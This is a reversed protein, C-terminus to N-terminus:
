DNANSQCKTLAFVVVHQMRFKTVANTQRNNWESFLKENKFAHNREFDDNKIQILIEKISFCFSSTSSTIKEDNFAQQIDVDLENFTTQQINKLNISHLISKTRWINSIIDKEIIKFKCQFLWISHNNESKLVNEKTWRYRARQIMIRNWMSQIDDSMNVFRISTIMDNVIWVNSSEAIILLCNAFYKSFEHLLDDKILRNIQEVSHIKM